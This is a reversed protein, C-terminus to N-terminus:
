FKNKNRVFLAPFKLASTINLLKRKVLIAPLLMFVYESYTDIVTTIFCAISMRRLTSQTRDPDVINRCM